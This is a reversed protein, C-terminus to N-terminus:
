IDMRISGYHLLHSMSKQKTVYKILHEAIFKSQAYGMPAACTPDGPLPSEEVIGKMAMSASVSSIFHVRLANVGSRYALLLLHFLGSICEKEYYTVPQLFDLMWACHCIMTAEAQMGNYQDVTLGLHIQTQDLAYTQLKSSQLLSTDLSREQFSKYLREIGNKGRVLAYVKKVSTSSLLGQLILAGLSGTSGTLIVVEGGKAKTQFSHAPMPMFEDIRKIYKSLLPLTQEYANIVGGEVQGACISQVMSEITSNQFVFNTPVDCVNKVISIVFVFTVIM